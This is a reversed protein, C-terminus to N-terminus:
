RRRLLVDEPPLEVGRRAAPPLDARHALAFLELGTIVENVVAVIRDVRRTACRTWAASTAAPWAQYRHRRTRSLLQKM